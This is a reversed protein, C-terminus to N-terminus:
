TLNALGLIQLLTAIQATTPSSPLDPQPTAAAGFFSISTAAFSSSGLVQFNGQVTHDLAVNMNSASVLGVFNASFDADLRLTDTIDNPSLGPAVLFRIRGGISSASPASDNVEVRIMAVQTVLDVGDSGGWVIAGLTDGDEVIQNEALSGSRSKAFVLGPGKDNDEFRILAMESTGGSTGMLQFSQLGGASNGVNGATPPIIRQESGIILHTGPGERMQLRAPRMIDAEFFSNTTFQASSSILTPKNAVDNYEVFSATEASTIAGAFAGTLSGTFSGSVGDLNLQSISATSSLTGSIVRSGTSFILTEAM